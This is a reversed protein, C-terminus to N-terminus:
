LRPEASICVKELSAKIESLERDYIAFELARRQKDLRQYEVLETREEELEALKANLQEVQPASLPFDATDNLCATCIQKQSVPPVRLVIDMRKFIDIGIVFVTSLLLM